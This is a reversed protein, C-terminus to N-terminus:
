FDSKKFKHSYFTKGHEDIQFDIGDCTTLCDKVKDKKFHNKWIIQFEITSPSLISHSVIVMLPELSAIADIFAWMWKQFTEPNIGGTLSCLPKTWWLYKPVNSDM